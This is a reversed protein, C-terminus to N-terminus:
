DRGLLIAFTRKGNRRMTLCQFSRHAEYKEWHGILALHHRLNNLLKVRCIPIRRLQNLELLNPHPGRTYARQRPACRGARRDGGAAPPGARAASGAPRDPVKIRPTRDPALRTRSAGTDCFDSILNKYSVKSHHTRTTM